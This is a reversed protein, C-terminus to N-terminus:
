TIALEYDYVATKLAKGHMAKMFCLMFISGVDSMAIHVGTPSTALQSGVCRACFSPPKTKCLMPTRLEINKDLSSFLQEESLADKSKDGALYLGVFKKYNHKTIYYTIGNKVGCDDELIRTNQYVRYFFKVSEGGLATQSGRSHTGARLNNVMAPMYKIDIGEDLSTRIPNVGKSADSFGSEVGQMIFMRKRSVAYNKDELLFGNSVDGKLDAIDMDILEKEIKAITTINGLDDKHEKFLEDRRARIKPNITISKPSSSPVGLESLGALSGASKGFRLYEDVYIRSPDRKEGEPLNDSLKKSIMNEISRPDLKGSMFPIKDGFPFIFLVCNLIVNGITTDVTEVVNDLDGVNLVIRDKRSYFAKGIPADEIEVFEWNNNPDRFYFNPKENFSYLKYPYEGNKPDISGEIYATMDKTPFALTKTISLLCILWHKKKYAGAQLAEILYTRKDIKSPDSTTMKSEWPAKDGYNILIFDSDKLAAYVDPITEVSIISQQVDAIVEYEVLRDDTRFDSGDLIYIYGVKGMLLTDFTKPKNERMYYIGDHVGHTFQSDDWRVAFSIAIIRSPTAFVAKEGDIANSEKPYLITLNPSDSGHYVIKDM